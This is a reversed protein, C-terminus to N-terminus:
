GGNWRRGTPSSMSPRRPISRRPRAAGRAPGGALRLLRIRPQPVAGAVLAEAAPTFGSRMKLETLYEEAEERGEEFAANLSVSLLLTRRAELEQRNATLFVEFGEPHRREHVPAALVVSEADGLPIEATMDETDVLRVDRGSKRVIQEIFAAIKRTQGEISAFVVLVTM